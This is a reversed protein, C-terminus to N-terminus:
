DTGPYYKRDENFEVRDGWNGTLTEYALGKELVSIFERRPIYVAGLSRLHETYVQCDIMFFGLEDLKRALTILAVKSANSVRTFMSEGFFCRGLSIGYLGGALEGEHWTEVSHALGAQHLSRYAEKMEGTIWTGTERERPKQCENIVADFKRDYTISFAGRMLIKKM